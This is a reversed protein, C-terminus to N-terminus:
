LKENCLDVLTDRAQSADSYQLEFSRAGGLTRKIARFAQQTLKGGPSYSGDILRKITELQGLPTLKTESEPTRAIFVIWSVPLNNGQKTGSAKLYRVRKGDPRNHVPALELEPRFKRVIEWSGQKLTPAFPVGTVTGDPAILAIDDSSYGFGAAMLYLSLTTKGAGPPGSILLGKGEHVMCAAHFAVDPSSKLVIQETIHAKLAPVIEDLACRLVCSKNHFVHVISEIEVADYFDDVASDSKAPSCFLPALQQALQESSSRIRITLKGVNAAFAHANDLEWDTELLGLKLWNRLAQNVYDRAAASKLGSRELDKCITEVPKRDVLSCWIFAAVQNLEYIRQASESFLVPRDDLLSFSADAAPRLSNSRNAPASTQIIAQPRTM